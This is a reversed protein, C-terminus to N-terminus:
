SWGGAGSRFATASAGEPVADIPTGLEEITPAGIHRAIGALARADLHYIDIANEGVM